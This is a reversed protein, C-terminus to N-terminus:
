RAGRRLQRIAGSAGVKSPQSSRQTGNLELSPFAGATNGNGLRAQKRIQWYRREQKGRRSAKALGGGAWGWQQKAWEGLLNHQWRWRRGISSTPLLVLSSGWGADGVMGWNTSVSSDRRQVSTDIYRQMTPPTQRRTTKWTCM